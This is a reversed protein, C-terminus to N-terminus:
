ASEGWKALAERVAGWRWRSSRAGIRLPRPLAGSKVDQWLKARSFPYPGSCLERDSVLAEDPLNRWDIARTKKGSTSM